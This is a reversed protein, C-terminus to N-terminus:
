LVLAECTVAVSCDLVLSSGHEVDYIGSIALNFEEQDLLQSARYRSLLVRLDVKQRMTSSLWDWVILNGDGGGSILLQPHNKLVCVRSVFESHGLCFGEIVHSQPIGRSVRIHEDRDATIIYNRPKGSPSNPASLGVAILDTLLSVHGLLLKHEFMLVQKKSEHRMQRQQNRLAERNKKTHVTLSTAAPSFPKSPSKSPKGEVSSSSPEFASSGECRPDSLPLSYVDGFKDGCLIISDDQTLAIACPRKPMARYM